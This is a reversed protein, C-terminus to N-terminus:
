TAVALLSLVGLIAGGHILGPSLPGRFESRPHGALGLHPGAHVIRVAAVGARAWAGAREGTGLLAWPVASFLPMHILTFWREADNEPMARPVCPLRWERRSVADLEHGFLFGLLIAHLAAKM